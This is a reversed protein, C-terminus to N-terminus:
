FLSALIKRAYIRGLADMYEAAKGLGAATGIQTAVLQEAMSRAMEPSNVVGEALIKEATDKILKAINPEISKARVETKAHPVGDEVADILAELEEEEVGEPAGTEPNPEVKPETKSEVVPNAEVAQKKLREELNKLVSETVKNAIEDVDIQPSTSVGAVNHATKTVGKEAEELIKLFEENTIGSM